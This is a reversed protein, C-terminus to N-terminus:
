GPRAGRVGRRRHGTQGEEREPRRRPAPLARHHRQGFGRRRHRDEQRQPSKVIRNGAIGGAVVIQLMVQGLNAIARLNEIAGVEKFPGTGHVGRRRHRGVGPHSGAIATRLSELGDIPDLTTQALGLVGEVGCAGDGDCQRSGPPNSIIGAIQGAIGYYTSGPTGAGIRFYVVDQASVTEIGSGATFYVALSLGAATLAGGLLGTRLGIGSFSALARM